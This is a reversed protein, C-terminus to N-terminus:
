WFTKNGFASDAIVRTGERAVFTGNVSNTKVNILCDGIYLVNDDWNDSNIYYNCEKFADTGIKEIGNGLFIKKLNLCGYFANDDIAKVSNPINIETLSICTEFASNGITEM